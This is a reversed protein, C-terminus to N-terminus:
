ALIDDAIDIDDGTDDSDALLDDDFPDNDEIDGWEDPGNDEISHASDEMPDVEVVFVDDAGNESTVPNPGTTAIEDGTETLVEVTEIDSEDDVVVDEAEIMIDNPNFDTASSTNAEEAASDELTVDVEEIIDDASEDDIGMANAAVTGAVGLGAAGAFKAAKGAVKKVKGKTESSKDNLEASINNNLTETNM